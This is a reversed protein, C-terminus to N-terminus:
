LESGMTRDQTKRSDRTKHEKKWFLNQVKSETDFLKFHQLFNLAHKFETYIQSQWKKREQAAKVGSDVKHKEKV